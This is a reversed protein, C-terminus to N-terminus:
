SAGQTPQTGKRPTESATIPLPIPLSVPPKPAVVPTAESRINEASAAGGEEPAREPEIEQVMPPEPPPEPPNLVDFIALDRQEPILDVAGSLNLLAFALGAHIAIVAAIVGGRDRKSLGPRYM